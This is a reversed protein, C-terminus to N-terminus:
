STRRVTVTSSALLEPRLAAGLGARDGVTVEGASLTPVEDVVDQYYGALFGRVVETTICNPMAMALHLNAWATVPGTCDHPAFPLHYTSALEAIRRGESLGGTWALDLM